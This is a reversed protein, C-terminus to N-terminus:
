VEWSVGRAKIQELGWSVYIAVPHMTPTWERYSPCKRGCLAVTETDIM